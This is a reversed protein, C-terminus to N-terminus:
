KCCPSIPHLDGAGLTGPSDKRPLCIETDAKTQQTRFSAERENERAFPSNLVKPQETKLVPGFVSQTGRMLNPFADWIKGRRVIKGVLM